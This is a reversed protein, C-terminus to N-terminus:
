KLYENLLDTRVWQPVYEGTERNYHMLQVNIGKEMCVNILTILATTLGTVYVIITSCPQLDKLAILCQERQAKFDMPDIENNYITAKVPLEHRGSFLGFKIM